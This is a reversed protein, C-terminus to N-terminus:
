FMLMQGLPRDSKEGNCRRCACQTNAYTHAGGKSLPVIHDLEPADDDYSGRKAKPTKVGCLQCKWKDRDFVEFPDVREASAGRCQARRLAKHVRKSKKHRVLVCCQCLTANSSGYLSCFLSGCEQCSTERAAARHLALAAELSAERAKELKEERRCSPCKSWPMREAHAIGCGCIGAYYARLTQQKPHRRRSLESLRAKNDDRWARQSCKKSCYIADPRKQTFETSCNLCPLSHLPKNRTARYHEAKCEPKCYIQQYSVPTFIGRCAPCQKEQRPPRNATLREHEGCTTRPRGRRGSALLAVGCHCAGVLRLYDGDAM